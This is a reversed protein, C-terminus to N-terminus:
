PGKEWKMGIEKGSREQEESGQAKRLKGLGRKTPGTSTLRSLEWSVLESGVGSAGAASKPAMLRPLWNRKEGKGVGLAQM